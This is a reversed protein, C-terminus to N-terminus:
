RMSRYKRSRSRRRGAACLIAAVGDWWGCNRRDDRARHGQCYGGPGSRPAARAPLPPGTRPGPASRRRTKAWPPSLISSCRWCRCRRSDRRRRRRWCAFFLARAPMPSPRGASDDIPSAGAGLEGAVRRALNRDPTVLAATRGETELTQRLALAIILAEQAPDDAAAADARGSGRRDRERRSPSLAGPM